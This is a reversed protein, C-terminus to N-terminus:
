TQGATIQIFPRRPELYERCRSIHLDSPMLTKLIYSESQFNVGLSILPCDWTALTQAHACACMRTRACGAEDEFREADTIRFVNRWGTMVYDPTVRHRKGDTTIFCSM